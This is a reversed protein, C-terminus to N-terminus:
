RSPVANGRREASPLSKQPARNTREYRILAQPLQQALHELRRDYTFHELVPDGQREKSRMKEWLRLLEHPDYGADALLTVGVEDARLEEQYTFLPPRQAERDACASSAPTKSALAHAFEHSLVAALGAETEALGFVDTDVIIAGDPGVFVRYAEPDEYIAVAWCQARVRLEYESRQAAAILRSSIRVVPDLLNPDNILRRGDTRLVDRAAPRTLTDQSFLTIRVPTQAVHGNTCAQLALLFLLIWGSRGQM